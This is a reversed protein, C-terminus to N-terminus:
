SVFRLNWLSIKLWAHVGYYSLCLLGKFTRTLLTAPCLCHHLCWYRHRDPSRSRSRHKRKRDNRHRDWDPSESRDRRRGHGKKSDHRQDDDRRHREDRQHARGNSPEAEVHAKARGEAVMEEDLQKAHERCHLLGVTDGVYKTAILSTM